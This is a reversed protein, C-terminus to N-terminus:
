RLIRLLLCEVDFNFLVYKIISPNQSYDLSEKVRIQVFVVTYFSMTRTISLIYIVELRGTTFNPLKEDHLQQLQVQREKLFLYLAKSYAPEGEEWKTRQSNLPV